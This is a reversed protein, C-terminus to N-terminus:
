SPLLSEATAIQWRSIIGRSRGKTAVELMEVLNEMVTRDVPSRMLMEHLSRVRPIGTGTKGQGTADDVQEVLLVVLVTGEIM